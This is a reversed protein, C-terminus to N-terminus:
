LWTSTIIGTLSIIIFMKCNGQTQKPMVPRNNKLVKQGAAAYKKFSLIKEVLLCM